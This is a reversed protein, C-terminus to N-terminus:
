GLWKLEKMQQHIAKHLRPSIGKYRGVEVSEAILDFMVYIDDSYSYVIYGETQRRQSYGLDNFLDVASKTGTFHESLSERLTNIDNQPSPKLTKEGEESQTYLRSNQYLYYLVNNLAKDSQEKTISM